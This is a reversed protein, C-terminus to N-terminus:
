WKEVVMTGHSLHVTGVSMTNYTSDGGSKRRRRRRPM